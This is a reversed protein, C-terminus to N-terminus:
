WRQNNRRINPERWITNSVIMSVSHFMYLCRYDLWWQKLYHGAGLRRWAIIQVLALSNDYPGTPFFFSGQFRLRLDFMKTWFFANALTTQLFPPWKTAAESPNIVKGSVLYVWWNCSPIGFVWIARMANSVLSARVLAKSLDVHLTTEIQLTYNGARHLYPSMNDPHRNYNTFIDESVSPGPAWQIVGM